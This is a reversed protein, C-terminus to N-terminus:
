VHAKGIKVVLYVVSVVALVVLNWRLYPGAGQRM